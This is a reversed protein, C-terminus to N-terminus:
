RLFIKGFLVGVVLGILFGVLIHWWRYPCPPAEINTNVQYPVKVIVTDHNHKVEIYVKDGPLKVYKITLKEKEITVTDGPLSEFVTDTKIEPVFVEKEVYVTDSDISAGKQEAKNIHHQARKLHWRASCGSM